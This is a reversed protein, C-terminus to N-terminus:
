PCHKIIKSYLEDQNFPKTVFDNMGAEFVKLKTEAFADATLAIIPIAPNKVTTAKSRIFETAQYGSMEPMQLDMLVIDFDKETLMDISEQGNNVITIEGNWKNIIQKAVFQNMMNDEALLIRLGELNKGKTNQMSQKKISRKSTKNFPLEVTFTTGTGMTSTLYIKGKQLVTLNKTIALGLGTGGFRRTTDTYAQTFSEFV